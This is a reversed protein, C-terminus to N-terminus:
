IISHSLVYKLRKEITGLSVSGDVVAVKLGLGKLLRHMLEQNPRPDDSSGNKVNIFVPEGKSVVVFDPWGDRLVDTIGQSYLVQLVKNEPYSLGNVHRDVSQAGLCVDCMRSEDPEGWQNLTKSFQENCLHEKCYRCYYKM